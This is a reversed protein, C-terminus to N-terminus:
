NDEASAWVADLLRQSRLSDDISRKKLDDNGIMAAFDEFMWERSTYTSPVRILEARTTGFGGRHHTYVASGDSDNTPFDDVTIVGNQGSLRLDNFVAGCDYACNWTSTSGDEFRIVGSGGVAAGTEQDRRVYTALDAIALNPPLYEAIARMNYWGVDGVAGMPELTPNYRINGKDPLAFQFTSTLSWPWGVASDMADRIAQTRPHHGFHNGDMFGVGNDRCARVIAELSAVSAFPKEALVHQGSAAAAVSIEERVGTPTAVYIADVGSWSAMDAWSAFAREARHKTAFADASAQRRSSVAALTASPVTTIVEAMSNAISGTGVIGWRVVPRENAGAVVPWAASLLSSIVAGSGAGLVVRRSVGTSRKTQGHGDGAKM